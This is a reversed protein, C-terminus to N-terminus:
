SLSYSWFGAGASVALRPTFFLLGNKVVKSSQECMLLLAGSSFILLGLRLMRQAVPRGGILGMLATTTCGCWRVGFVLAALAGGILDVM